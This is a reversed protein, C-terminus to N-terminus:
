YDYIHDVTVGRQQDLNAVVELLDAVPVRWAVRKRTSDTPVPVAYVAQGLGEYHWTRPAVGTLFIERNGAIETIRVGDPSRALDRIADRFDDYRATSVLTHVGDLQKVARVRPHHAAAQDNWGTVILQMRDDEPTYAAHTALEVAKAYVAKFGYEATLFLRRDWKRVIPPGWPRV